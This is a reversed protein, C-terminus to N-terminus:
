KTAAEYWYRKNAYNVGVTATGDKLTGTTVLDSEVKARMYNAENV